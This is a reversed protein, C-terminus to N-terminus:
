HTYHYALRNQRVLLPQVHSLIDHILTSLFPSTM